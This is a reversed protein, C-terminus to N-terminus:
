TDYYDMIIDGAPILALPEGFTGSTKSGMTFIYLSNEYPDTGSSGQWSCILNMPIDEDILYSNKNGSSTLTNFCDYIAFYWEKISWYNANGLRIFKNPGSSEYVSAAQIPVGPERRACILSVRCIDNIFATTGGGGISESTIKMRIRIQKLNVLNGIRQDDDTGQHVGFIQHGGPNVYFVETLIQYRYHKLEPGIDKLLSPGM